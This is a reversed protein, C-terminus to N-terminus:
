RRQPSAHTILTGDSVRRVPSDALNDQAGATDYDFPFSISKTRSSSSTTVAAKGEYAMIRRLFFVNLSFYCIFILVCVCAREQSAFQEWERFGPCNGGNVASLVCAAVFYHHVADSGKGPPSSM